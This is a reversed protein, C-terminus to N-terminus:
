APELPIPTSRARLADVFGALEDETEGRAALAGLLASVRIESGFDDVDLIYNLLTRADERTLTQRQEIILKLASTFPNPTSSM